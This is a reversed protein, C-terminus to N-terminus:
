HRVVGPFTLIRGANHPKSPQPSISKAADFMLSLLLKAAEADTRKEDSRRASLTNSISLVRGYLPACLSDLMDALDSAGKSHEKANPIWNCGKVYEAHARIHAIMGGDDDGLDYRGEYTCPEGGNIYHVTFSTKDYGGGNNRKNAEARRADLHSLIYEAAPVSLTLGEELSPHESWNIVVHPEGDKLPFRGVAEAIITKGAEHEKEYEARAEAQKAEEAQKAAIRVADRREAIIAVAEAVQAPSPHGSPLAALEARYRAIREERGEIEQRIVDPTRWHWVHKRNQAKVLEERLTQTYPEEKKLEAQLAAARAFPYLPHDPYICVSDTDFYDTMIDTDNEVDFLDSPIRVNYNNSREYITVCERGDHRGDISYCVKCLERLGNVRIGNSFFRITSTKM